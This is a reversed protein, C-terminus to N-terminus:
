LGKQVLEAANKTALLDRVLTSAARKAAAANGTAAAAILAHMGGEANGAAARLAGLEAVVTKPPQLTTLRGIETSWDRSIVLFRQAIEKGSSGKASQLAAGAERATAGMDAIVQGYGSKFAAANSSSGGTSAGTSSGSTGTPAACFTTGDVKVETQPATGIQVCAIANPKSQDSVLKKTASSSSCDVVNAGSDICDGVAASASTGGGGGCGAAVLTAAMTALAATLPVTFSPM